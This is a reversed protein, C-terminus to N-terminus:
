VRCWAVLLWLSCILCLGWISPVYCCLCINTAGLKPLGLVSWDVMSIWLKRDVLRWVLGLGCSLVRFCIWTAPSCGRRPCVLAKVDSIQLSVRFRPERLHFFSTRSLPFPTHGTLSIPLAPPLPSFLLAHSSVLDEGKAAAIPLPLPYAFSNKITWTPQFVRGSRSSNNRIHVWKNGLHLQRWDLRSFDPGIAACWILVLVSHKLSKQWLHLM